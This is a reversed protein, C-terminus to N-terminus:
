AVELRIFDTRPDIATIKFSLQAGIKTGKPVRAFV